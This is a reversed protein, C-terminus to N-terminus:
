DIRNLGANKVASLVGELTKREEPPLEGMATDLAKVDEIGSIQIGVKPGQPGLPCIILEQEITTM